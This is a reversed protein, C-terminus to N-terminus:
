ARRSLVAATLIVGVIITVLYLYQKGNQDPKDDKKVIVTPRRGPSYPRNYFYSPYYPYYPRNYYHYYRHPYNGYSHYNNTYRPHRGYHYQKFSLPCRRGNYFQEKDAM